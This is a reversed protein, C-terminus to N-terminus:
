SPIPSEDIPIADVFLQVYKMVLQDQITLTSTEFRKFRWFSEFSFVHLELLIKTSCFYRAPGLLKMYLERFSVAFAGAPLFFM